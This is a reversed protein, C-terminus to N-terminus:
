VLFEAGDVVYAAHRFDRVIAVKGSVVAPGTADDEGHMGRSGFADRGARLVNPAPRLIRAQSIIKQVM